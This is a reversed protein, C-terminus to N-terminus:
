HNLKEPSSDKKSTKKKKLFKIAIGTYEFTVYRGGMDLDIYGGGFLSLLNLGIALGNVSKREVEYWEKFIIGDARYLSAEKQMEEILKKDLARQNGTVTIKALVRYPDLLLEDDEYVPIQKWTKKHPKEKKISQNTVLESKTAINYGVCGSLLPILLLIFVSHYFSTKKM